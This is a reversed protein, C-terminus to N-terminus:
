EKLSLMRTLPVQLQVIVCGTLARAICVVMILCVLVVLLVVRVQVLVLAQVVLVPYLHLLLPVEVVMLVRVLPAVVIVGQVLVVVENRGSIREGVEERVEIPGDLLLLDSDSYWLQSTVAPQGECHRTSWKTLLQRRWLSKLCQRNTEILQEM